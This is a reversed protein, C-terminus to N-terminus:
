LRVSSSMGATLLQDQGHLLACVRKFLLATIQFSRVVNAEEKIRGLRESTRLTERERCGSSSVLTRSIQLMTNVLTNVRSIIRLSVAKPKKFIQSVGVVDKIANNHDDPLHM